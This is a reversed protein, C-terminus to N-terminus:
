AGLNQGRLITVGAIRWNGDIEVMEYDLIHLRGTPDVIQVQQVPRGGEDRLSLFSVEGPTWVMPYGQEVMAGFYLPSGFLQQITPSAYTWATFVNRTAFADMQNQIVQQIAPNDPLREQATAAFPLMFLVLAFILRPM